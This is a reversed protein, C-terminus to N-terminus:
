GNRGTLRAWGAAVDESVHHVDANFATWNVLRAEESSAAADHVYAAGVAVFIGFIIGVFFNMVCGLQSRSEVAACALHETM